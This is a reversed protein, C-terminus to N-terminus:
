VFVSIIIGFGILLVFFGYARIFKETLPLVTGILSILGPFALILIGKILAIWGVLTVFIALPDTWLNHIAVIVAGIVFASLAAMFSLAKSNEFENFIGAFGRTDIVLGLGAALFYLGLLLAITETLSYTALM